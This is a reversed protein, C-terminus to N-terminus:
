YKGFILHCNIKKRPKARGCHVIFGLGWPIECRAAGAIFENPVFKLYLSSRVLLYLEKYETLMAPLENSRIALLYSTQIM